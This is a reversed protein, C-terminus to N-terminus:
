SFKVPGSSQTSQQVLARELERIREHMSVLQAGLCRDIRFCHSTEDDAIVCVTYGTQEIRVISRADTARSKAM